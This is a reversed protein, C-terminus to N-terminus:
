VFNSILNCHKEGYYNATKKGIKKQKKRIFDLTTLNKKKIQNYCKIGQEKGKQTYKCWIQLLRKKKLAKKERDRILLLLHMLKNEEEEEEEETILPLLGTPTCDYTEDVFFEGIEEEVWKTM